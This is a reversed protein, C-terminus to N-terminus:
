FLPLPPVTTLASAEGWPSGPEIGPPNVGPDKCTPITISSTVPRRTKEPYERKGWGKCELATGDGDERTTPSGVASVVAFSDEEELAERTKIDRYIPSKKPLVVDVTNKQPWSLSSPWTRKYDKEYAAAAAAAVAMLIFGHLTHARPQSFHGAVLPRSNDWRERTSPASAIRATALTGQKLLPLQHKARLDWRQPLRVLSTTDSDLLMGSRRGDILTNHDDLFRGVVHTVHPRESDQQPMAGPSGQLYPLIFSEFVEAIYGTLTGAIRALPSPFQFGIASPWYSPTYHLIRRYYHQSCLSYEDSLVIAHWQGEPCLTGRLIAAATIPAQVHDGSVASPSLGHACIYISANCANTPTAPGNAEHADSLGDRRLGSLGSGSFQPQLKNVHSGILFVLQLLTTQRARM